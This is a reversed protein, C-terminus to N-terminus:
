LQTFDGPDDVKLSLFAWRPIHGDGTPLPSIWGLVGLSSGHYLYTIGLDNYYANCSNRDEAVM